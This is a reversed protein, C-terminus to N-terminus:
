STKSKQGKLTLIQKLNNKLFYAATLIKSIVEQMMIYGCIIMYWYFALWIQLM